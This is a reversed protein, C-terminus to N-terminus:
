SAIIQAAFMRNESFDKLLYFDLNPTSVENYNAKENMNLM